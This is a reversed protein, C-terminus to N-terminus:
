LAQSIINHGGLDGGKKWIIFDHSKYGMGSSKFHPSDVFALTMPTVRM